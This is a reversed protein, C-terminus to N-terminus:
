FRIESLADPEPIWVMRAYTQEERAVERFGLRRYFRQAGRNECAVHLAVCAAASAQAHRKVAQMIAFGLGANRRESALGIDVIHWHDHSADLYLRGVPIGEWLILLFDAQPFTVVYARHQLDFQQDLFARMQETPWALSAFEDARFSRYLARLFTLDNRTARRFAAPEACLPIAAHRAPFDPLPSVDPLPM